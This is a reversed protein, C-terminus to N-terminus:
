IIPAIVKMKNKMREAYVTVLLCKVREFDIPVISISSSAIDVIQVIIAAATMERMTRGMMAFERKM